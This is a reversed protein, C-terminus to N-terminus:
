EMLGVDKLFSSIIEETIWTSHTSEVLLFHKKGFERRVGRILRSQQQLNSTLGLVPKKYRFLAAGLELGLGTSPFDIVAVVCDCGRVMTLIDNEYVSEDTAEPDTVFEMVSHGMDRLLGKMAVVRQKFEDPARNLACGVYIISM